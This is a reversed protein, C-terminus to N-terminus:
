HPPDATGSRGIDDDLDAMLGEFWATAADVRPTDATEGTGSDLLLTLGVAAPREPRERRFRPESLRRRPHLRPLRRAIRFYIQFEGYTRLGSPGLPSLRPRCSCRVVRPM